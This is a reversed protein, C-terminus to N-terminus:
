LTALPQIVHYLAHSGRWDQMMRGTNSDRQDQTPNESFYGQKETRLM